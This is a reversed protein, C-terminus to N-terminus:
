FRGAQYEEIAQVIEAHTNMVFPGYWAVAENLPKGAILLARAPGGV